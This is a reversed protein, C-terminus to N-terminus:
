PAAHPHTWYWFALFALLLAAGALLYVALPDPDLRKVLERAAKRVAVSETQKILAPAERRVRAYDGQEFAAVLAQLAPDEPFDLAFAPIGDRRAPREDAEENDDDDEDASREDDATRAAEARKKKRKRRAPVAEAAAEVDDSAPAAEPSAQAEGDDDGAAPRPADEEPAESSV